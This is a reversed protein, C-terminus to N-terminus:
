VCATFFLKTLPFLINLSADRSCSKLSFLRFLKTSTKMLSIEHHSPACAKSSFIMSNEERGRSSKKWRHNKWKQWKNSHYCSFMKHKGTTSEKFNIGFDEKKHGKGKQIRILKRKTTEIMSHVNLQFHKKFHFSLLCLARKIEKDRWTPFLM